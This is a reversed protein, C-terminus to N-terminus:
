RCDIFLHFLKLNGGSASKHVSLREDPLDTVIAVPTLAALVRYKSRGNKTDSDFEAGVRDFWIDPDHAEICGLMAVEARGPVYYGSLFRGVGDAGLYQRLSTAMSCVSDDRLRKAEFTFDPRPRIGYRVIQIDLKPRAKGLQGTASSPKENHVGYLAYREPTHPSDIRADIGEALIGTIDYEDKATPLLHRRDQYSWAVLQHADERLQILYDDWEAGLTGQTM